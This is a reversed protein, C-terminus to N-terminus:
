QKAEDVIDTKNCAGCWCDSDRVFTSFTEWSAPLAKYKHHFSIPGEKKAIDRMRTCDGWTKQAYEALADESIESEEYSLDAM